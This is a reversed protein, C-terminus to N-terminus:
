ESTPRVTLKHERELREAQELCVQAAQPRHLVNAYVHAQARYGRITQLLRQERTLPSVRAVQRRLPPLTPDAPPQLYRTLGAAVCPVSLYFLVSKPIRM